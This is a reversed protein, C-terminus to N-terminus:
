LDAYPNVNSDDNYNTMVQQGMVPPAFQNAQNNYANKEQIEPDIFSEKMIEKEKKSNVTELLVAENEEHKCKAKQCIAIVIVWVIVFGVISGIIIPAKSISKSNSNPGSSSPEESYPLDSITPEEPERYAFEDYFHNKNSHVLKFSFSQYSTENGEINVEIKHTTLHMPDAIFMFDTQSELNGKAFYESSNAYKVFANSKGSTMSVTANYTANSAAFFVCNYKTQSSISLETTQIELYKNSNSVIDTSICDYKNKGRSYAVILVDMDEKAVIALKGANYLSVGAYYTNDTRIEKTQEDGYVDFIKETFDKQAYLMIETGPFRTGIIFTKDKQITVTERAYEYIWLDTPQIVSQNARFREFVIEKPYKNDSPFFNFNMEHIDTSYNYTLLIDKFNTISLFTAFGTEKEIIYDNLNMFKIGGEYFSEINLNRDSISTLWLCTRQRPFAEYSLSTGYKQSNMSYEGKDGNIFTYQDCEFGSINTQLYSVKIPRMTSITDLITITTPEDFKFIQPKYEKWNIYVKFGEKDHFALITNGEVNITRTGILRIYSTGSGTINDVYQTQSSSSPPLVITENSIRANPMSTTNGFYDGKASLVVNVPSNSAQVEFALCNGYFVQSDHSTIITTGNTETIAQVSTGESNIKCEASKVKEGAFWVLTKPTTITIECSKPETVVKLNDCTSPVKLLSFYVSVHTSSTVSLTVNEEGVFLAPFSSNLTRTTNMANYVVTYDEIKHFIIATRNELTIQLVKYYYNLSDDIRGFFDFIRSRVRSPYILNKKGVHEVYINQNMADASEDIIPTITVKGHKSKKTVRLFLSDATFESSQKLEDYNYITIEDSVSVNYKLSPNSFWFEVCKEPLLYEYNRVVQDNLSSLITYENTRSVVVQSECQSMGIIFSFYITKAETEISIKGIKDNFNLYTNNRLTIQGILESDESYVSATFNESNHIMVKTPLECIELVGSGSSTDLTASGYKKGTLGQEIKLALVFFFMAFVSQLTILLFKTEFIKDFTDNTM